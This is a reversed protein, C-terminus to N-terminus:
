PTGALMLGFWRLILWLWLASLMVLGFLYAQFRRFIHNSTIHVGAHVYRSVVFLWGLVLEILGPGMHLALLAAVAYLVPLQFQNDFANSVKREQEPWGDRSLAIDRIAVKGAMIMPVRIFGLRWVLALPLIGLVLLSAILWLANGTM